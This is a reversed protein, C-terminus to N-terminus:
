RLSELVGAMAPNTMASPWTSSMWEMQEDIFARITINLKSSRVYAIGPRYSVAMFTLEGHRRLSIFDDSEAFRIVHSDGAELGRLAGALTLLWGVLSIWGFGTSFDIDGVRMTMDGMFAGQTLEFRECTALDTDEEVRRGTGPYGTISFGLEIDDMKKLRCDAM